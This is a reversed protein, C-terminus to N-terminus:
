PSGRAPHAVKEYRYGESAEEGPRAVELVMEGPEIPTTFADLSIRPPCTATRSTPSWAFGHKSHWCPRRIDAAPDAHAVSRLPEGTRVQV